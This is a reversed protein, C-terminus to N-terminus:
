AANNVADQPAHNVAPSRTAPVTENTRQRVYRPPMPVVVILRGTGVYRGPLSTGGRGTGPEDHALPQEVPECLGDTGM